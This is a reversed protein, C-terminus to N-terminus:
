RGAPVTVPAAAAPSAGLRRGLAGIVFPRLQAPTIIQDVSGVRMARRIDHIRDFEDAVEKLKEARV